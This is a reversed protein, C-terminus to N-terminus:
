SNLRALLAAVTAGTVPDILQPAIEALPELVFSREAFRPHPIVLGPETLVLDGYLILDLDLTRPAGPFPRRRGQQTEIALLRDLLRRPELTSWGVLAANLFRPQEGGGV